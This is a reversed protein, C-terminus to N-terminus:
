MGGTMTCAATSRYSRLSQLFRANMRRSVGITEMPSMRQLARPTVAALGSSRWRNRFVHIIFILVIFILVYVSVGGFCWYGFKRTSSPDRLSLKIAETKLYGYTLFKARLDEVEDDQRLRVSCDGQLAEVSVVGRCIESEYEMANYEGESLVVGSTIRMVVVGAVVVSRGALSQNSDDCVLGCAGYFSGLFAFPLAM